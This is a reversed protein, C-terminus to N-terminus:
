PTACTEGATTLTGSITSRMHLQTAGTEDRAITESALQFASATYSGNVEVRAQGPGSNPPACALVARLTGGEAQWTEYTCAGNLTHFVAVPPPAGATAAICVSRPKANAPDAAIKRVMTAPLGPIDLHDMRTAIDWKGAALGQAETTSSTGLAYLAPASGLTALTAAAIKLDRSSPSRAFM